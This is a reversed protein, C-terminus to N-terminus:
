ANGSLLAILLQSYSTPYQNINYGFYNLTNNALDTYYQNKTIDGLMLLTLVAISNGSPTAHDVGTKIRALPTEANISTLFFGGKESDYFESIMKDTLKKATELFENDFTSNYLEIYGYILFAYDEIFGLINSREERYSRFVNGEPTILNEKIFNAANTAAIKYKEDNFVKWAKALTNIMLGNWGAIIKDDVHPHTRQNRVELLKKKCTDLKNIIETLNLNYNEAFKELSESIYLVNKDLGLNGIETVGYYRCFLEADTQLIKFLEEASWAYSKGEEGDTDADIGSYFAGQPNTLERLTFDLTKKAVYAYLENNTTQYAEIYANTILAQDYLMKEFHPIQWMKDTSYRHFGGGLHDFIGGTYMSTLTKEVMELAYQENSKKYWKLLLILNHATPFKPSPGFGGYEKDFNEAFIDFIKTFIDKHIEEKTSEKQIIEIQNLILSGLDLIKNRNDKWIDNIEKLVSILSRRGYSEKSPQYTTAFVPRKDPTMIINLPWGCSESLLQCALMYVEDIDPREERDVKVAVFNENLFEATVKDSFADHAMEHCWHCTSYGISLFIMRDENLAKSFAEDGWPYWDVPNYAHQLLYPSKESILRNPNGNM